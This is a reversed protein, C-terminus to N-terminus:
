SSDIFEPLSSPLVEVAVMQGERCIPCQRLSSGTLKEYLAAYDCDSLQESGAKEPDPPPMALLHRCMALKEERHRNSFFGYYRIRQFGDPLVHILFRRLFEEASLTMTKQRDHDRYDKWQFRVNGEEMTLLRNNSIAVRHTYRGVYDLVQRPGAFPAKAYVVWDTQKLPAIYSRFAHPTAYNNWRASSSCSAPNSLTKWISSFCDVSCVLCFASPSSSGRDAPSGDYAM